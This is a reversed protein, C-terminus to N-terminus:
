SGYCCKVTMNLVFVEFNVCKYCYIYITVDNRPVLHADYSVVSCRLVTMFVGIFAKMAEIDMGNMCRQRRSRSQRGCTRRPFNKFMQTNDSLIAVTAVRFLDIALLRDMDPLNTPDTDLIIYGNRSLVNWPLKVSQRVPNQPHM